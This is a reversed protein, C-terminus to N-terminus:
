GTQAPSRGEAPASALHKAVAEGMTAVSQLVERAREPTPIKLGYKKDLAVVLQLADVSDLGLSGPGFLPQEDGIEGTTLQLMLNEVMMQKIDRKLTGDSNMVVVCGNVVPISGAM